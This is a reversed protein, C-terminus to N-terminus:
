GGNRRSEAGEGPRAGRIGTRIEKSLEEQSHLSLVRTTPPVDPRSPDERIFVVDNDRIRDVRWNVAVDTTGTGGSQIVEPRAVFDGVRLIWGLGTPDSVLVRGANGAIIGVVKLEELAYKAVLVERQVVGAENSTPKVAFIEEFSRFPDRTTPSELFDREGIDRPPIPPLGDAAVSAAPAPAGPAAAPAAAPAPALDAPASSPAPPPADEGGCGITPSLAIALTAGHLLTRASM